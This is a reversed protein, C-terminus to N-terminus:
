SSQKIKKFLPIYYMEGNLLLPLYISCPKMEEETVVIPHMMSGIAVQGSEHAQAGAGLCITDQLDDGVPGADYGVCTHGSGKVL